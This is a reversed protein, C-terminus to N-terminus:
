ESENRAVVLKGCRRVPIGRKDCYDHLRQNGIRTFKAKLSDPSYYFGAHIVGSNRGSAHRGPETEKELVTISAQPWRRRMERAVCIGIVGAGIVVFDPTKDSTM